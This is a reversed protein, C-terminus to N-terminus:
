FFLFRKSNQIFLTDSATTERAVVVPVQAAPHRKRRANPKRKKIQSNVLLPQLIKKGNPPAYALHRNLLRIEMSRIKNFVFSMEERIRLVGLRKIKIKKGQSCESPKSLASYGNQDRM